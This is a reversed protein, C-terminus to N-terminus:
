AEAAARIGAELKKWDPSFQYSLGALDELTGTLSAIPIEADAPRVSANWALGMTNALAAQAMIENKEVQAVLSRITEVMVQNDLYDAKTVKGSSGKYLSETLQLTVEM